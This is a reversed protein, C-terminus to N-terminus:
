RLFASYICRKLQEDSVEDVNSIGKKCPTADNFGYENVKEIWLYVYRGGTSPFSQNFRACLANWAEEISEFEGEFYGRLLNGLYYTNM